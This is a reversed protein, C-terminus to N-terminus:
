NKQLFKEFFALLLSKSENNEFLFVIEKNVVSYLRTVKDLFYSTKKM